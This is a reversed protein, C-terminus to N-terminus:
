LTHLYALLDNIQEDTLVNGFGDMKNRGMRIVDKVRDDNAPMGSVPLDERKFLGKLSPGQRKKSSYPLHCRDCYQDYIHRGAAQRPTLGLEADSKRRQVECGTSLALLLIAVWARATTNSCGIEFFRRKLFLIQGMSFSHCILENIGCGLEDELVQCYWCPNHGIKVFPFEVKITIILGFGQLFGRFVAITV